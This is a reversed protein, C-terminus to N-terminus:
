CSRLSSAQGSRHRYGRRWPSAEEQRRRRGAVSPKPELCSHMGTENELLDLVEGGHPARLRFRLAGTVWAGFVKLLEPDELYLSSNAPRVAQLENRAIRARFVSKSLLLVNAAAEAVTRASVDVGHSWIWELIRNYQSFALGDPGFGEEEGTTPRVDNWAGGGKGRISAMSRCRRRPARGM